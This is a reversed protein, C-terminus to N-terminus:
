LFYNYGLSPLLGYLITNSFFFSLRPFPSIGGIAVMPIFKSTLIDLCILLWCFSLLQMIESVHLRFYGFEEIEQVYSGEVRVINARGIM